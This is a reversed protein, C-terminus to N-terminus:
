SNPNSFTIRFCSGGSPVPIYELRARNCECLERAIYLGLGTGTTETTYFPEFIHGAQDPAIGPGHDIIDLFPRRSELTTGGRMIVKPRGAHHRSHRLGNQVLNWLVQHLHTRDMFVNVDQPNIDMAIEDPDIHHSEIYEAIFNELWPKIAFASPNFRDRRSLQLINEIITNVRNSHQKIIEILRIDQRDLQPAEALLQAAHSIAGLPNRIEHAISATLQGLSALKLQQAQQALQSADELIILTGSERDDGLPSFHPLLDINGEPSTLSRHPQEQHTEWQALCLNLEDSLQDLRMTESIFPDGFLHRAAQNILRIRRTGDIVVVGSQMLQIVHENLHALNALDIGRQKALKESESLRKTLATTLLSTAFFTAGLLGAHTYNASEHEVLHAFTHEGLIAITAVAAVLHSGREPVQLASGAITIVLLMGLGSSVSDSAHMLLTLFAIDLFAYVYVQLTFGPRQWTIAMSGLISLALFILSAYRFLDPNHKIFSTAPEDTFTLLFLAGALLIRFINFLRMARWTRSYELRPEQVPTGTQAHM